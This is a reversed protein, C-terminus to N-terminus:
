VTCPLLIEDSINTTLIHMMPHSAQSSDAIYSVHMATHYYNLTYLTLHYDIFIVEYLKQYLHLIINIVDASNIDRCLTLKNYM